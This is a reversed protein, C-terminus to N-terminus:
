IIGDKKMMEIIRESNKGDHFSVIKRYNEIYESNQNRMYNKLIAETLGEPTTTIDGFTNNKDIMLHAGGYHTMCEDKEEWCFIVNAGRYFADYAISSYDTILLACSKLIEDYSTERPIFSSLRCDAKIMANRMLPHPLVDIKTRYKKPVAKFMRLMMAYYATSEFDREAANSEWRRWTPMIVIRDADDFRTNRDFKALGTVYIEEKKFGGLEIFHKAELESSVVVRYKNVNNERFSVRMDADLSIMYMVGHQLFVYPVNKDNARAMIAKNAARLQVMHERTETGVFCRCGFFCELHDDSDKYLLNRRYKAELKDIVPNDQNIVYFVNDYGMDILKEYLVSASEEYRSCEKEYLMIADRYRGSKVAKVARRVAKKGETTDYRNPERVTLWMGNKMAQRLYVSKNNCNIVRSNRFSTRGSEFISYALKGEFLEGNEDYVPIIRNQIDLEDLVKTALKMTYFNLRFRKPLPIGKSMKFHLDAFPGADGIKFRLKRCQIPKSSGQLKMVCLGKAVICHKRESLFFLINSLVPKIEENM